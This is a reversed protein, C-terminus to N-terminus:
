GFSGGEGRRPSVSAPRGARERRDPARRRRHSRSGASGRSHRGVTGSAALASREVCRGQLVGAWVSDGRLVLRRGFPRSRDRDAAAAGGVRGGTGGGACGNRRDVAPSESDGNQTRWIRGTDFDAALIVNSGTRQHVVVDIARFDAFGDNVTFPYGDRPRRNYYDHLGSVVYFRGTRAPDGLWTTFEFSGGGYNIWETSGGLDWMTVIGQHYVGSAAAVGSIGSRYAASCALGDNYDTWTEGGDRSLHVGGDSAAYVRGRQTPDFVVQQQDPHGVGNYGAVWRWSRGGDTTVHLDQQGGLFHETDFPDVAVVHCWDGLGDRGNGHDRGLRGAASWGTGPAAGDGGGSRHVFVEEALKAVITRTADEAGVSVVLQREHDLASRSSIDLAHVGVDVRAERAGHKAASTLSEALVYYAAIEVDTPLRRTDIAGTVVVISSRRALDAVAGPLGRRTLVEPHLRRALERLEFIAEHLQDGAREIVAKATPVDTDLATLAAAVWPRHGRVRMRRPGTNSAKPVTM